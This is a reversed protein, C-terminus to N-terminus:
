KSAKGFYNIIKIYKPFREKIDYNDILYLALINLMINIFGILIFVQLTAIGIIHNLIPDNSDKMAPIDIIKDMIFPFLFAYKVDQIFALKNKAQHLIFNIKKLIM